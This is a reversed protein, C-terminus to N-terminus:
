QPITANNKIRSILSDVDQKCNIVQNELEEANSDQQPLHNLLDALQEQVQNIFQQNNLQIEAQVKNFEDLLVQRKKQQEVLKEKVLTSIDIAEIRKKEKKVQELELGLEKLEKEFESKLQAVSQDQQLKQQVQKEKLLQITNCEKEITHERRKLDDLEKRASMAEDKLQKVKNETTIYTKKTSDLLQQKSELIQMIEQIDSRLQKNNIIFEENEKESM